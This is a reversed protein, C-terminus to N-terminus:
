SSPVPNPAVLDETGPRCYPRVEKYLYIKREDTMGTPFIPQPFLDVPLANEPHKLINFFLEEIDDYEKLCVEGIKLRTSFSFHHYKRIAPLPRFIDLLFSKWHHYRVLLKGNELGEIVLINTLATEASPYVCKAIDTLSSIFTRKTVKKVLGFCANCAFKTHGAIMFGFNIIDNRGTLICWILYQIVYNNKNQGVCNDAHFYLANVGQCYNELYHHLFSIITNPGKGLSVSEDILYNVQQFKCIGFLGCKRPTLFFLGGPQDPPAPFHLQQAFDFSIHIFSPLIHESKDICTSNQETIHGLEIKANNCQRKYVLREREARYLHEEQKQLKIVKQSDEVNATKLILNNNKQCDNCLDTRPKAIIM